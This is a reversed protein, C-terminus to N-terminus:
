ATIIKKKVLFMMFVLGVIFLVGGVGASAFGNVNVKEMVYPVYTPGVFILLMSIIIFAVRTFKSYTGRVNMNENTKTM